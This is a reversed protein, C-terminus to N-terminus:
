QDLAQDGGIQVRGLLPYHDSGYLADIRQYDASWGEPLRFFLYDVIREPLFPGYRVTGLQLHQQLPDFSEEVYRVALEKSGRFWTNFDGGLVTPGVDSFAEVVATIQRLRAQGFSRFFRAWRARNELHVNIVQVTWPRGASTQGSINAGIAVRRQREYPLEMATFSSMALTSLIASGRDEPAESASTEGNRMAPVYYLALSHRRTIERIDMREGSPPSCRICSGKRVGASVSAPVESGQRFAEQLLLVFDQVPKGATLRGEKLDQIFRDLDGGGMHTNWSVVILSDLSKIEQVGSPMIILPIGVGGRWAELVSEETPDSVAKWQIPQDSVAGAANGATSSSEIGFVPKVWDAIFLVLLCVLLLRPSRGAKKM